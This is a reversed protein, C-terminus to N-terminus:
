LLDDFDSGLPQFANRIWPTLDLTYLHTKSKLDPSDPKGSVTRTFCSISLALGKLDSEVVDSQLPVRDKVNVCARAVKVSGELAHKQNLEGFYLRVFDIPDANYQAHSGQLVALQAYTETLLQARHIQSGLEESLTGLSNFARAKLFERQGNVFYQEYGLFIIVLVTWTIFVTLLKQIKDGSKLM